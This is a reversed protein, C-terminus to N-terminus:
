VRAVFDPEDLRGAWLIKEMSMYDFINRRTLNTISNKSSM